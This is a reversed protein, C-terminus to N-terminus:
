FRYSRGFRESLFRLNPKGNEVWESRSKWSKTVEKSFVCLRNPLMYRMVFEDYGIDEIKDVHCTAPENENYSSVHLARNKDAM